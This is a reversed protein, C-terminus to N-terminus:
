VTPGQQNVIKCIAAHVYWDGFGPRNRGRGKEGLIITKLNMHQLM